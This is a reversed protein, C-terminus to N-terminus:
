PSAMVISDHLQISKIETAYALQYWQFQPWVCRLAAIMMRAARTGLTSGRLSSPLPIDQVSRLRIAYQGASPIRVRAAYATVVVSGSCM